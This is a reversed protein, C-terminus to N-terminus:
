SGQRRWTTSRLALHGSDQGGEDRKRVRRGRGAAKRHGALTEYPWIAAIKHEQRGGKATQVGNKPREPSWTAAINGGGLQRAMALHLIKSWRGTSGM